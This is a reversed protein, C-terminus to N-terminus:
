GAGRMCNALCSDIVEAAIREATDTGAPDSSLRDSKARDILVCATDVIRRAPIDRDRFYSVYACLADDLKPSLEGAAFTRQLEGALNRTVLALSATM